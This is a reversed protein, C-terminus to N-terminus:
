DNWRFESINEETAGRNCERKEKRSTQTPDKLIDEWKVYQLKEIHFIAVIVTKNEKDAQDRIQTM